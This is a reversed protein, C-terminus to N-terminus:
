RKLTKGKHKRPGHLRNNVVESARSRAGKERSRRRGAGGRGSQLRHCYICFQEKSEEGPHHVNQKYIPPASTRAPLANGHRPADPPNGRQEKFVSGVLFRLVTFFPLSFTFKQGTTRKVRARAWFGTDFLILFHWVVM